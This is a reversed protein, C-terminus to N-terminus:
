RELPGPPRGVATLVGRPRNWAAGTTCSCRHSTGPTVSEDAPEDIRGPRRVDIREPRATLSPMGNAVLSMFEQRTEQHSRFVGLMASTVVVSNQKEVGRMRM